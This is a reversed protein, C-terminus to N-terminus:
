KTFLLALQSLNFSVRPVFSLPPLFPALAPITATFITGEPRTKDAAQKTFPAPLGHRVQYHTWVM